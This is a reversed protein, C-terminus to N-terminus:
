IVSMWWAAVELWSRQGVVSRQLVPCGAVAAIPCWSRGLAPVGFLGSSPPRDSTATRRKASPSVPAPARDMCQSGQSRESEANNSGGGRPGASQNLTAIFSSVDLLGTQAVGYKGRSRPRHPFVPPAAVSGLLTVEPKVPRVGKRSFHAAQRAWGGLDYAAEPEVGWAATM